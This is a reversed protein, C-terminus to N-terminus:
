RVLSLVMRDSREIGSGLIRAMVWANSSSFIAWSSAFGLLPCTTPNNAAEGILRAAIRDVNEDTTTAEQLAAPILVDCDLTILDAGPTAAGIELEAITHGAHRPCGARATAYTRAM